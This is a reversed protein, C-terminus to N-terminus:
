GHLDDGTYAWGSAGLPVYWHSVFRKQLSVGSKSKLIKFDKAAIQTKEEPVTIEDLQEQSLPGDDLVAEAPIGTTTFQEEESTDLANSVPSQTDCGFFNMFLALGLTITPLKKLLKAM